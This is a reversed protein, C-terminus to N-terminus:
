ADEKHPGRLRARRSPEAASSHLSVGFPVPALPGLGDLRGGLGPLWSEVPVLRVALVLAVVVELAVVVRAALSLKRVPRAQLRVPDPAIFSKVAHTFAKV